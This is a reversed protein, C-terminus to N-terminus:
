YVLFERLESRRYLQKLVQRQAFKDRITHCQPLSDRMFELHSKLEELQREIGDENAKFLALMVSVDAKEAAEFLPGFSDTMCAPQLTTARSTLEVLLEGLRLTVLRLIEQTPLWRDRVTEVAQNKATQNPWLARRVGSLTQLLRPWPVAELESIIKDWVELDQWRDLYTAVNKLTDALSTPQMAVLPSGSIRDAWQVYRTMDEATLSTSASVGTSDSTESSRRSTTGYATLRDLGEMVHLHNRDFIVLRSILEDNSYKPLDFWNMTSLKGDLPLSMDAWEVVIALGYVSAIRYAGPLSPIRGLLFLEECGPIEVIWDGPSGCISASEESKWKRTAYIGWRVASSSPTLLASRGKVYSDEFENRFDESDIRLLAYAELLLAGTGKLVRFSSSNNGSGDLPTNSAHGPRITDYCRLSFDRYNSSKLHELDTSFREELRDAVDPEDHPYADWYPVWSPNGPLLRDGQREDAEFAAKTLINTQRHRILFYAAIGIRIEDIAKSYDAALGELHAGQVLGLLAFVMDRPDTALCTSTEILLTSLGHFDRIPLSRGLRLWPPKSFKREPGDPEVLRGRLLTQLPITTEGLVVTAKKSLLVEQIVWIRSWYPRDFLARVAIHDHSATWTVDGQNGGYFLSDATEKLLRTDPADEDGGLFIAVSTARSYIDRMLGVQHSKEDASFQNICISDIWLTQTQHGSRLRRLASACNSTIPLPTWLNGLFIEECLSRDGDSDAWTYSVAVYDPRKSLSTSELAGHLIMDGASKRPSLHLLRIGDGGRLPGYVLPNFRASSDGQQNEHRQEAARQGPTMEDQLGQLLNEHTHNSSPESSIQIASKQEELMYRRKEERLHKRQEELMNGLQELATRINPDQVEDPSSFEVTSPWDLNLYAPTEDFNSLGQQLEGFNTAEDADDRSYFCGCSMCTPM